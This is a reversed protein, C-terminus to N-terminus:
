SYPSSFFTRIPTSLIKLATTKCILGIQSPIAIKSVVRPPAREIELLTGGGEALLREIRAGYKSGGIGTDKSACGKSM